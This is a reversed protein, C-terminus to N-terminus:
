VTLMQCANQKIRFFPFATCEFLYTLGMVALIVLSVKYTRKMVKLLLQVIFLSCYPHKLM